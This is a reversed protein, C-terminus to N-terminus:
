HWCGGLMEEPSDQHVPSILNTM